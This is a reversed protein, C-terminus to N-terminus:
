AEKEISEEVVEIEHELESIKLGGTPRYLLYIVGGVLGWIVVMLFTSISVMVALGEPVHFLGLADQFMTERVGLGSLSIPLASMTMIVPLVSYIDTLGQMGPFIGFARAAFYSALFILLHAAVSLSFTATLVRGNRAYISFASALEVIRAHLPLWAPLKHALHFRDVIFGLAVLGLSTGLVAGVILMAVRMKPNAWLLDFHVASLVATIAVLAMLGMMRDVMVSLFAASKRSATERMAYFIKIIDGGTAGLLFLNFFAGILYVRLTRWWGMDIGQVQMLLRWRQTQILFAVGLSLLGPIMWTLNATRLAEGMQARKGPDRFIWWLLGVTISVQLVTLVIRKM